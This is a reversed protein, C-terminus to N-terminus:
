IFEREHVIAQIDDITGSITGSKVLVTVYTFFMQVYTLVLAASTAFEGVDRDNELLHWIGLFIVLPTAVM